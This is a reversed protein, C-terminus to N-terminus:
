QQRSGHWKIRLAIRRMRDPEGERSRSCGTSKRLLQSQAAISSHEKIQDSGQTPQLCTKAITSASITSNCPFTMTITTNISFPIRKAGFFYSKSPSYTKASSIKTGSETSVTYKRAMTKSTDRSKTPTSTGFLTKQLPYLSLLTSSKANSQSKAMSRSQQNAQSSTASLWPASTSFM